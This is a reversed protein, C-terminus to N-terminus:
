GPPSRTRPRAQAERRVEEVVDAPGPGAPLVHGEAKWRDLKEKLAERAFEQFSLWYGRDVLTVIERYVAPAVEM